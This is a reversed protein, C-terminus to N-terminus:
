NQYQYWNVEPMPVEFQSGVLTPPGTECPWPKPPFYVKFHTFIDSFDYEGPIRKKLNPHKIVTGFVNNLPFYGADHLIIYKSKYKLAKITEHRGLWPSQDVFCIDFTMTKFLDSEQLFKIWHDPNLNDKKGPVFYFHHWPEHEYKEKYRNLWSLNDDISILTRGTKKCIEHLMDTSGIGCGFEVIPGDTMTAITYLVPQHTSYPDTQWRLSACNILAFHSLAVLIFSIIQHQKNM